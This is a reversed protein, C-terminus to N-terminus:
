TKAVREFLSNQRECVNSAKLKVNIDVLKRNLFLAPIFFM